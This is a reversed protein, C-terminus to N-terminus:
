LVQSSQSSVLQVTLCLLMLGKRLAFYRAGHFSSTQSRVFFVVFFVFFVFCLLYCLREEKEHEEYRRPKDWGRDARIRFSCDSPM